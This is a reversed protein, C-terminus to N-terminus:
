GTDLVSCFFFLFVQSPLSGWHWGCCEVSQGKVVGTVFLYFSLKRILSVSANATGLKNSAVCTYNGYRDETMNTVTLVSRSSLSKIDIGQSKIIRFASCMEDLLHHKTKESVSVYVCVCVFHRPTPPPPMLVLVICINTMRFHIRLIHPVEDGEEVTRNTKQTEAKSLHVSPSFLSLFTGSTFWSPAVQCTTRRIAATLSPNCFIRSCNHRADAHHFHCTNLQKSQHDHSQLSM